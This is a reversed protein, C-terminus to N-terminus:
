RESSYLDSPYGIPKVRENKLASTHAVLGFPYESVRVEAPCNNTLPSFRERSGVLVTHVVPLSVTISSHRRRPHPQTSIKNVSTEYSRIAEIKLTYSIWSRCSVAVQERQNMVRPNRIGQLHLRYTGGFRRNVFYIYPAVDWFVDNKMTMATFVEFRVFNYSVLFRINAPRCSSYLCRSSEWM